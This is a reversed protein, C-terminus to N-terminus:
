LGQLDVELTTFLIANSLFLVMTMRMRGTDYDFPTLSHVNYSIWSLRPSNHPMTVPKLIDCSVEGYTSYALINASSFTSSLTSPM